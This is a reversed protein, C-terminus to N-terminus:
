VCPLRLEGENDIITVTAVSPAGILDQTVATLTFVFVEDGELEDDDSVLVTACIVSDQTSGASFTLMTNRPFTLDSSGNGTSHAPFM